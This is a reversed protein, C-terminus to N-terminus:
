IDACLQEVARRLNFCVRVSSCCRLITYVSFVACSHHLITFFILIGFSDPVLIRDMFLAYQQLFAILVHHVFHSLRHAMNYYM